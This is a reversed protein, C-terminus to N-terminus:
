QEIHHNNPALTAVLRRVEPHDPWDNKWQHLLRQCERHNAVFQPAQRALTTMTTIAEERNDTMAHSRIQDFRFRIRREAPMRDVIIRDGQRIAMRPNGNELQVVCQHIAVNTPSFASWLYNADDPMHDSIACAENLHRLASPRDRDRAAATAAVLHLSGVASLRRPSATHGRWGFHILADDIAGRAVDTRGGAFHAYARSRVISVGLDDDEAEQALREGEDLATLAYDFRGLKTFVTGALWYASSLYGSVTRCDAKVRWRQLAAIASPLQDLVTSYNMEQYQRWLRDIVSSISSQDPLIIASALLSMGNLFSRRNMDHSEQQQHTFPSPTTDVASTERSSTFIGAVISQDVNLAQALRRQNAVHPTVDGAEWRQYTSTNVPVLSALAEQSLGHATRLDILPQRIRRQTM